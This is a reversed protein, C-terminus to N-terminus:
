NRMMEAVKLFVKPNRVSNWMQQMKELYPPDQLIKSYTEMRGGKQSLRLWKLMRGM